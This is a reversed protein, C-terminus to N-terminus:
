ATAGVTQKNKLRVQNRIIRSRWDDKFTSIDRIQKSPIYLEFKNDQSSPLFNEIDYKRTRCSPQNSFEEVIQNYTKVSNEKIWRRSEVGFKVIQQCIRDFGKQNGLRNVFQNRRNHLLQEGGIVYAATLMGVFRSYTSSANHTFSRIFFGDDKFPGLHIVGSTTLVWNTYGFLLPKFSILFDGGGWVLRNTSLPQYGRIRKYLKRKILCPISRLPIKFLKPIDKYACKRIPLFSKVNRDCYADEEHSISYCICGFLIGLNNLQDAQDIMNKISDKYFLCHSDVILIYESSSEEVAKDRASFLCPFDQQFLKVQGSKIFPDAIDKFTRRKGPIDSNDVVIIECNFNCSKFEELVSRITILCGFPDNRSSIVLSLKTNKSM